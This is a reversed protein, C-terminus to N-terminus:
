NDVKISCWHIKGTRIPHSNTILLCKVYDADAGFFTISRAESKNIRTGGRYEDLGYFYFYPDDDKYNIKLLEGFSLTYISIIFKKYESSSSRWMAPKLGFKKYGRKFKFNLATM